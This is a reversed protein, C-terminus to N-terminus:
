ADDGEVPLGLIQRTVADANERRDEDELMRECLRTVIRGIAAVATDFEGAEVEIRRLVQAAEALNRIEQARTQHQETM